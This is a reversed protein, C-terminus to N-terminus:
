RFDGRNRVASWICSVFTDSKRGRDRKRSGPRDARELERRFIGSQRGAVVKLWPAAHFGCMLLYMPVMGTLPSANQAPSCFLDNSARGNLSTLLAMIAFTPAAALSIWDGAHPAHRGRKDENPKM